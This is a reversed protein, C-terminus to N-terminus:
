ASPFLSYAASRRAPGHGPYVSRSLFLSGTGEPCDYQGVSRRLCTAPFFLSFSPFLSRSRTVAPAMHRRTTQPPFFLFIRREEGGRGRHGPFLFFPLVTRRWERESESFFFLPRDCSEAAGRPPSPPFLFLPLHLRSSCRSNSHLLARPLPPFFFFFSLPGRDDGSPCASARHQDAPCLFFFLLGTISTSVGLGPTGLPPPTRVRRASV